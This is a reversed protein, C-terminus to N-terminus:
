FRDYRYTDCRIWNCWPVYYSLYPPYYNLKTIMSEYATRDFNSYFDGIYYKCLSLYYYEMSTIDFQEEKNLINIQIRFEIVTSSEYM